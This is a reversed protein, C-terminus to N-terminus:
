QLKMCFFSGQTESVKRYFSLYVVKLTIVLLRSDDRGLIKPFLSVFSQMLERLHKCTELVTKKKSTQYERSIQQFQSLVIIKKACFLIQACWLYNQIYASILVTNERISAAKLYLSGEFVLRLYYSFYNICAARLNVTITEFNFQCSGM